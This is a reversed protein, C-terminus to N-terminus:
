SIAPPARGFETVYDLILPLSLSEPTYCQDSYTINVCVFVYPTSIHTSNIRLCIACHGNHASHKQHDALQSLSIGTDDKTDGLSHLLPLLQFSSFFALFLFVSICRNNSITKMQLLIYRYWM